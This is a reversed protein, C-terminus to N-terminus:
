AEEPKQGPRCPGGQEDRVDLDYKGQVAYNYEVKALFTARVPEKFDYVDGTPCPLM